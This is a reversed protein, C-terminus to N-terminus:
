DLHIVKKGNAAPTATPPKANMIRAADLPLEYGIIYSNLSPYKKKEESSLLDYLRQYEVKNDWYDLPTRSSHTKGTYAEQHQLGQSLEERIQAEPVNASKRSLYYDITGKDADRLDAPVSELGSIKLNTEKTVLGHVGTAANREATLARESLLKEVPLTFEAEMAAGVIGPNDKKYQAIIGKDTNELETKVAEADRWRGEAKLKAITAAGEDIRKQRDAKWEDFKVSEQATDQQTKTTQAAEYKSLSEARLTENASKQAELATKRDIETKGALYDMADTGARATAQLNNEGYRTGRMMQLGMHLLTSKVNPDDLVQQWGAKRQEFEQPSQPPATMIGQLPNNVIGDM